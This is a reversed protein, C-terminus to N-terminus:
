AGSAFILQLAVDLELDPDVSSAKRKAIARKYGLKELAEILDPNPTTTKAAPRTKTAPPTAGPEPIRGKADLFDAPVWGCLKGNLYIDRNNLLAQEETMELPAATMLRRKEDVLVYYTM